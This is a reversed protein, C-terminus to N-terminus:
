HHYFNAYFGFPGFPGDHHSFPGVLDHGYAAGHHYSNLHPGFGVGGYGHHGYGHAHHDVYGGHGYGHGYGGYGGYGDDVTHHGYSHEYGGVHGGYPAAQYGYARGYAYHLSSDSPALDDEPKPDALPLGLVSTLTITCLALPLIPFRTM